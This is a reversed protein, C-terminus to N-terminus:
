VVFGAEPKDEYRVEDVKEKKGKGAFLRNPYNVVLGDVKGINKYAHVVHPPVVVVAPNKEGVDIVVKKGYTKSKKRNDWLYLKFDSPGPFVFYDTQGLHEHPGRTVGPRTFSVYSMAPNLKKSLEDARFCEALWGRSDTFKKLEKIVVGKIEM